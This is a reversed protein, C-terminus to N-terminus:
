AKSLTIISSCVVSVVTLLLGATVLFLQSDGTSALGSPNAVEAETLPKSYSVAQEIVPDLPDSGNGALDYLATALGLSVQDGDSLGTVEVLWESSSVRMISSISGSTTGNLEFDSVVLDQGEESALVSFKASNVDTVPAQGEARVISISPPVTDVTLTLASSQASTNGIEDTATYSVEYDADALPGSLAITVPGVAVCNHTAESIGDVFIELTSPLETCSVSVVPMTDSTIADLTSGSNSSAELVPTTVAPATKDIVFSSEDESTVNGAFDTAGVRIDGTGENGDVQMSCDVRSSNIQVCLVNSISFAGTANLASIAVGSADISYNDQITVTINTIAQNAVKTPANVLVTPASTEIIFIQSNQGVAGNGADRASVTMSGSSSIGALGCTVPQAYPTTNDGGDGTCSGLTAGTAGADLAINEIDNGSPSTITISADNITNNSVETPTNFNIIPPFLITQTYVNGATDYTNIVVSHVSEDPDLTLLLPSSASSITQTGGVGPGGNDLHHVVNVRDVEINDSASFTLTPTNAGTSTNVSVNNVPNITDIVYNAETVVSSGLGSNVARIALSGDSSVTATCDVQEATTQVCDLDAVTATSSLDISVGAVSVTLGPYGPTVRITTNTIPVNSLKTPANITINPGTCGRGSDNITWGNSSILEQREPGATCYKSTGADFTIGSHVGNDRWGVLTSDYNPVSLGAALFMGTMNTVSSVNWGGLSQDFSTASRFMANMTLSSGVNWSGLPQNFSTAGRFMTGMTTVDSVDWSDIPQNFSTAGDFMSAMNTVSGTDWNNLPQNFSTAGSFMLNMTVAHSTDWHSIDDNFSTASRFMSQMNAVNSLNPADTATVRLNSAGYFASAMNSWSITGWQKVELLKLRDGSNNFYIRPFSGTIAITYTGPTSYNCTYAGTLSSGEAIGDDNCDVSYNYGGAVTPIAFQTSGSSGSNDTKVQMVFANPGYAYTTSMKYLITLAMIGVLLFAVLHTRRSLTAIYFRKM